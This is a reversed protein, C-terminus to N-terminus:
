RCKATTLKPIEGGDDGLLARRYVNEAPASRIFARGRRMVELPWTDILRWDILQAITPASLGDLDYRRRNGM